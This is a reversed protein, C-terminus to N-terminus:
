LLLLPRFLSPFNQLSLRMGIISKRAHLCDTGYTCDTLLLFLISRIRCVCSRHYMSYQSYGAVSDRDASMRCQLSVNM